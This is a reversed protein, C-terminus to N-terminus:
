EEGRSSLLRLCTMFLSNILSSSPGADSRRFEDVIITFSLQFRSSQVGLLEPANFKMEDCGLWKIRVILKTCIGLLRVM